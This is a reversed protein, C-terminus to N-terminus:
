LNRSDCNWVQGGVGTLQALHLVTKAIEEISPPRRLAHDMWGVSEPM